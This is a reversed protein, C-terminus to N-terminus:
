LSGTWAGGRRGPPDLKVGGKVSEVLSDVQGAGSPTRSFAFRGCNTRTRGNHGSIPLRRQWGLRLPRNNAKRNKPAACRLSGGDFRRGSCFDFLAMTFPRATRRCFRHRNLKLPNRRASTARAWSSICPSPSEDPHTACWVVIREFKVSDDAIASIEMLETELDGLRAYFMWCPV